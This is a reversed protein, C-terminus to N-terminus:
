GIQGTHAMAGLLNLILRCALLSTLSGVDNSPLIEVVNCGAIRGKAALGRLLNSAEYYTLGGPAHGSVGPAISPDLADFDFSIYYREAPPVRGLVEAVGVRHLEEAGVLISGYRRTDEYDSRRANSPGRIGIQIMATVWPMEWARRMPSGRGERIGGIEDRFDIHADLHFVCLDGRGEYARMVPIPVSDEGGIVIPVAGRDLIARIAETIARSTEGFREPDVAVDGCDVIKVERGAFLEGGFDFDYHRYRPVYRLSQERITETATAALASRYVDYPLCFPVGLIAVHADLAALDTCRPLDLFTPRDKPVPTLRASAPM